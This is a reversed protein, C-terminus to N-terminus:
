AMPSAPDSEKPLKRRELESQIEKIKSKHENQEEQLEMKLEQIEVLDMKRIDPFIYSENYTGIKEEVPIGRKHRDLIVRVSPTQDPVTKKEGSNQEKPVNHPRYPTQFFVDTLKEM